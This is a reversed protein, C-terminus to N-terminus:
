KNKILGKEKLESLIDTSTIAHSAYKMTSSHEVCKCIRSVLLYVCIYIVVILAILELFNM